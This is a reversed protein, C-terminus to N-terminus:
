CPNGASASAEATCSVLALQLVLKDAAAFLLMHTTIVNSVIADISDALGQKAPHALLFAVRMIRSRYEATVEALTASRRTTAPHIPPLPALQRWPKSALVTRSLTPRSSM